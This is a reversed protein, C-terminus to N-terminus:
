MGVLGNALMAILGVLSGISFKFTQSIIDAIFGFSLLAVPIYYILKTGTQPVGLGALFQYAKIGAFGTSAIGIVTALALGLIIWANLATNDTLIGM